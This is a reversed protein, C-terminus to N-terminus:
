EYEVKCAEIKIEEIPILFNERKDKEFTPIHTFDPDNVISKAIENAENWTILKLKLRDNDFSYHDEYSETSLFGLLKETDRNLIAVTSDKPLRSNINTIM